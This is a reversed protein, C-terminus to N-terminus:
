GHQHQGDQRGAANLSRLVEAALEREAVPVLSFARTLDAFADSELGYAQAVLAQLHAQSRARATPRALRRAARAIRRQGSDGTWPPVPMSEILSTTVHGGMLMRVVLNLVWSNFIGCLFHQQEDPLQTRLCFLTHTTVMDAPLVAAILSLRNQVGSVDRYALRPRLFGLAPLLRRAVAQDIRLTSAGVNVAFPGIHKGELVPIGAACFHRRDETVNLERGFRANWGTSSGLPPFTSSLRDLLRLDSARRIDPIRASAGGTQKITAAALRVPYYDSQVYAEDGAPLEAIVDHSAVGFRARVERTPGAGGAVLLMFRLGRHIPFLGRSNDLGVITDISASQLLRRRLAAAGDDVALGWPLVLGVRGGPRVLTLARELFPQYLNVHGRDCSDYLGSDRIFRVLQRTHAATRSAGRAAHAAATGRDERLMEWPPNGLVADFGPQTRPQGTDEFFVDPFELLWHFFMHRSELERAIQLWRAVAAPRLGGQSRTLTDIVARTEQASPRAIGAHDPWFWRSCWLSLALRWDSVPSHQGSLQRWCAEKTHVAEVSDDPATTLVRLSQVVHAVPQEPDALDLLPLPGRRSPSDTVRRLDHPSAGILSDGVRLRHDLFGLPKGEALTALWLSLRALQVAVPNSDVGALCQQAVSRRIAARDDPSIDAASCRGEEVLASEHAGALYRCASVLFAGSGMAPDLVRLQLIADAPRGAVLPALTRRVLFDTITQPTYFTGSEKRRRSHRGSTPPAPPQLTRPDLDLVREYVAGLQEVGLDSYCIEERGAAAPRTALALLTQQVARDRARSFPTPRRAVLRQELSPAAAKAFLAGNFAAVQLGPLRCGTRSLRSVARLADWCGVPDLGAGAERCLSALSYSREYIPHGHPVLDRSEAFLLFLIRYLVTLAEDLRAGASRPPLLASRLLTLATLVGIQLDSRVRDQFVAAADLATEIPARNEHNQRDFSGASMLRLMVAISEPHLVQPFCVDLARRRGGPRACVLSFFPVALVFCWAANLHRAAVIADRWVASAQRAWPLVILALSTRQPTALHVRASSRDFEANVASFGLGDFLPMAAIDFLARVATAPGCSAAVRAWWRRMHTLQQAVVAPDLRRVDSWLASSLYRTPFLNGEIGILRATV